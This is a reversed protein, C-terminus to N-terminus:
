PSLRTRQWKMKGRRTYRLRDHLRNEQGQWFEFEEPVLRYGGWYLPLPVTRRKYKERLATMRGDLTKRDKISTSQQSAWAGLQSERPRSRFYEASERRSVKAVKGTIRIQRELSVWHFLLAAHKNETLERAKRSGYNTYFVFGQDSFEKLFVIRASPEAQKTATALTMANHMPLSAADKSWKEFQKFPNADASGESLAPHNNQKPKNPSLAAAYTQIAAAFGIILADATLEHGISAEALFPIRAILPPINELNLDHGVNVVLGHARAEEATKAIADLVSGYKRARFAEAYSGTRIEIGDAGAEVVRRIIKPDPDVFLIVRSGIKKLAVIAKRVLRMQRVDLDFGKESTFASPSDPVLTCQEPCVATVIKLFRADPYGEINFEITPRFPKMLKALASVDSRRIHREDPRPHVTIGVGADLAIRAFALVDPVGTHRSNRLLAVKNLNVSLRAM